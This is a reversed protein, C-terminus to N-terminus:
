PRPGFIVTGLRLMTAGAQVAQVYDASMGMSLTDLDPYTQQAETLLEALERFRAQRGTADLKAEPICMLGRLKLGAIDQCAALLDLVAQPPIGAKTAENGLNVQICTQLPPLGTEVRAAGLRVAIKYRDVTHVWSFLQAAVSTKNSQLAGILHWALDPYATLERAKGVAEQVYNEGFARLGCHYAAAVATAPHRKSVAIISIHAPNRPPAVGTVCATALTTTVSELNSRIISEM